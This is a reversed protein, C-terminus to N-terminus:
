THTASRQLQILPRDRQSCLLKHGLKSEALSEWRSGRVTGFCRLCISEDQKDDRDYYDHPNTFALVAGM